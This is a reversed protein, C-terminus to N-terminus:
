RQQSALRELLQRLLSNTERQERLLEELATQLDGGPASGGSAAGSGRAERYSRDWADRLAAARVAAERVLKSALPDEGQAADRPGAAGGSGSAPPPPEDMRSTLSLHRGAALSTRGREVMRRGRLWVFWVAGVILLALVGAIAIARTVHGELGEVLIEM